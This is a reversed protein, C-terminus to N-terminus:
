KLEDMFVCPMKLKDHIFRMSDNSCYGFVVVDPCGMFSEGPMALRAKPAVYVRKLRRCGCFCFAGVFDTRHPMVLRELYECGAFAGQGIREISEPLYVSSIGCDEFAYDGINKVGAPVTIHREEGDYYFVTGGETCLQNIHSNRYNEFWKTHEFTRYSFPINDGNFVVEELSRCESFAFLAIYEVTSPLEIKRLKEANERSIPSYIFKVGEEFILEELNECMRLAGDQVLTCCGPVVVRKEASILKKLIFLEKNYCGYIFPIGTEKITKHMIGDVYALVDQMYPYLPKNMDKNEEAIHKEGNEDLTFVPYFDFCIKDAMETLYKEAKTYQEKTLNTRMYEFADELM